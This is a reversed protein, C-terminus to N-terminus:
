LFWICRGVENLSVQIGTDGGFSNKLLLDFKDKLALVDDVWKLAIAVPGGGPGKAKAKGKGKADEEEGDEGDGGDTTFTMDNAEKGRRAISDKLARKLTPPGAEVMSFLRYMRALDDYKEYDIM